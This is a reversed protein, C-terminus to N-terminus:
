ILSSRNYIVIKEKKNCRVCTNTVDRLNYIFRHVVCEYKKNFKEYVKQTTKKTHFCSLM